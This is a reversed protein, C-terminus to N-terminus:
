IFRGSTSVHKGIPSLNNDSWLDGIVFIDLCGAAVGRAIERTTPLISTGPCCGQTIMGM